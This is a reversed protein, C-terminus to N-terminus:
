LEKMGANKRLHPLYATCIILQILGAIFLFWIGGTGALGNDGGAFNRFQLSIALYGDRYADSIEGLTSLNPICCMLAAFTLASLAVMSLVSIPERPSILDVISALLLVGTVAAALIFVIISLLYLATFTEHQIGSEFILYYHDGCLSGLLFALGISLGGSWLAYNDMKATTMTRFFGPLRERFDTGKQEERNPIMSVSINKKEEQKPAEAAFIERGCYPCFRSDKPLEKGCSPCFM